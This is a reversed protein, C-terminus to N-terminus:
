LDLQNNWMEVQIDLLYRLRLMNVVEGFRIRGGIGGMESVPVMDLRNILDSVQTDDKIRSKGVM